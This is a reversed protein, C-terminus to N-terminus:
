AFANRVQEILDPNSQGKNKQFMTTPAVIDSVRSLRPPAHKKIMATSARSEAQSHSHSLVQSGGGVGSGATKKVLSPYVLKFEKIRHKRYEELTRQADHFNLM